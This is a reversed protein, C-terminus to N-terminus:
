QFVAATTAPLSSGSAPCFSFLAAYVIQDVYQCCVYLAAVVRCLVANALVAWSLTAGPTQHLQLANVRQELTLEADQGQQERGEAVAQQGEGQQTDLAAEDSGNSGEAQRKRSHAKLMVVHGSNDAGVVAMPADKVPNAQASRSKHKSPLLVGEAQLM